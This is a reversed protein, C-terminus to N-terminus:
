YEIMKLFIIFVAAYSLVTFIMWFTRPLMQGPKIKFLGCGALYCYKSVLSTLIAIIFSILVIVGYIVASGLLFGSMFGTLIVQLNIFYYLGACLGYLIVFFVTKYNYFM